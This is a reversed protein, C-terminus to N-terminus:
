ESPPGSDSKKRKAKGSRICDEAWDLAIQRLNAKPYGIVARDEDAAPATGAAAPQQPTLPREFKLIRSM